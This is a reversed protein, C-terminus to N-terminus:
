TAGAVRGNEVNDSRSRSRTALARGYFGWALGVVPWFVSKAAVILLVVASGFLFAVVWQRDGMGHRWVRYGSHVWAWVTLGVYGVFGLLGLSVWASIANHAYGGISEARIHGGFDGLVWSSAIQSLAVGQLEVRRAWSGSESLDFLEAQRSSGVWEGFVGLVLVMAVFGAIPVAIYRWDVRSALIMVLGVAFVFGVLESRAGLVFLSLMGMGLVVVQARFTRAVALLVLATVLVSRAFGQYTAIDEVGFAQRAYFMANGTAVVYGLLSLAVAGLFTWLGRRLGVSSIPLEYAVWFSVFLFVWAAAAQIAARKIYPDGGLLVFHFFTWLGAYLLFVYVLWAYPPHSTRVYRFGFSSVLMVSAVIVVSAYGFLGGLFPEMPTLGVSFHYVFFGPFLVLFAVLSISELAKKSGRKKRSNIANM